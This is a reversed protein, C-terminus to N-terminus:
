NLIEWMFSSSVIHQMGQEDTFWLTGNDNVKYKEIRHFVDQKLQYGYGNTSPRWIIITSAFLSCSSLALLAALVLKKM